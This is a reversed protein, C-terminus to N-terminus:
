KNFLHYIKKLVNLAWRAAGELHLKRILEGTLVVARYSKSQVLANYANQTSIYLSMIQFSNMKYEKLPLIPNNFYCLKSFIMNKEGDDDVLIDQCVYIKNNVIVRIRIDIDTGCIIQLVGDELLNDELLICDQDSEITGVPDGESTFYRAAEVKYDLYKLRRITKEDTVLRIRRLAIEPTNSFAIMDFLGNRYIHTHDEVFSILTREMQAASLGDDLILMNPYTEALREKDSGECIVAMQNNLISCFFSDDNLLYELAEVQAISFSRAHILQHGADVVFNKSKEKLEVFSKNTVRGCEILEIRAPLSRGDKLCKTTMGSDMYMLMLTDVMKPTHYRKNLLYECLDILLVKLLNSYPLNYMIHDILTDIFRERDRASELFHIFEPSFLVRRITSYFEMKGQIVRKTEDSFNEGHCRYHCVANRNYLFAGQMCMNLWLEYDQLRDNNYGWFETIKEEMGSIKVVSGPACLFNGKILSLFLEHRDLKHIRNHDFIDGNFRKGTRDVYVIEAFSVISGSAELAGIQKGLYDPPWVDDHGIMAFYGADHNDRYCNYLTNGVGLNRENKYFRIKDKYEKAYGQIIDVSDDTSCDDYIILVFDLWTQALVSDITQRLFRNGNYVPLFVHCKDM